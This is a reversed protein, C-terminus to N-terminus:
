RQTEKRRVMVWVKPLFGGKLIWEDLAIVLDALRMVDHEDIPAGRNARVKIETALYIQQSLNESPDM